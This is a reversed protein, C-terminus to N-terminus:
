PGTLEVSDQKFRYSGSLGDEACTGKFEATGSFQYVSGAAPGTFNVEAGGAVFAIPQDGLRRQASDAPGRAGDAGPDPAAAGADADPGKFSSLDLGEDGLLVAQVAPGQAHHGGGRLRDARRHISQGAHHHHGAPACCRWAWTPM